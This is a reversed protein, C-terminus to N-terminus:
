QQQQQRGSQDGELGRVDFTTSQTEFYDYALDIQMTFQQEFVDAPVQATCPVHREGNYLSVTEPCNLSAADTNPFAAQTIQINRADGNLGAVRGDGRNTIVVPINVSSHEGDSAYVPTPTQIDVTVGLPGATTRTTVPSSDSEDHDNGAVATFSATATTQYNYKVRVNAPFTQTFGTDLNVPNTIRWTVTTKEGPQNSSQDVPRLSSKGQFQPQKQAIFDAGYLAKEIGNAPKQGTNEVGLELVVPEGEGYTDKVSRFTLTLGDDQTVSVRDTANTDDGVDSGGSTCGALLVM